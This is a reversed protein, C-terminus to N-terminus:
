YDMKEYNEAIDFLDKTQNEIKPLVSLLPRDQNLQKVWRMKKGIPQDTRRAKGDTHKWQGGGAVGECTWGSAKLSTGTEEDALIYTQIRLFGMEKGARAAASYLMSCVNKTGNSVLRTVELVQSPKGALRAVPRGVVAAGHLIGSEDLVGLSFRHGVCPQHHRHWAEITQNAEALEIPVVFLKM